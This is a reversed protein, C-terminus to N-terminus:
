KKVCMTVSQFLRKSLYKRLKGPLIEFINEMALTSSRVFGGPRASGLRYFVADSFGMRQALKTMERYTWEKFHFGQPVDSFSGSIDHPGTFRHPTSFIYSGGPKLVRRVLEFHPEVDDPHLHEIFQYSFALDVSSDPVNLQYGDYVILNFNLPRAIHGASQDSIDVALVRRAHKAVEFALTCDGPAFELFTDVGQLQNKLLLMQAAAMAQNEEPTNRRNLRPHDPVRRFLEEYLSQFLRTRQERTSHLLRQALEREVEFHRRRQDLSRSDIGPELNGAM